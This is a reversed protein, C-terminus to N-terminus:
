DQGLNPFPISAIEEYQEDVIKGDDDLIKKAGMKCIAIKEIKFDTAWKFGKSKELLDTADLRLPGKAYRGHGRSNSSSAVTEVIPKSTNASAEAAPAENDDSAEERQPAPRDRGGQKVYVTNVVTAHLKLSRDDPVCFGAATFEDRLRKCLPMLIGSRDDPGAYLVSTKRPSHMSHLSTLSIQRLMGQSDGQDQVIDDIIAGIDLTQLFGIAESVRDISDLSMVGLTFHISGVPRIAKLPVRSDEDLEENTLNVLDRFQQFSAELQSRTKDTVLPLCLFHTLPPKKPGGQRQGSSSAGAGNGGKYGTHM